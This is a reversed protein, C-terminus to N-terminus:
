LRMIFHKIDAPLSLDRFENCIRGFDVDFLIKCIYRRQKSDCCCYMYRADNYVFLPHPFLSASMLQDM